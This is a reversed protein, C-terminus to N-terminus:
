KLKGLLWETDEGRPAGRRARLALPEDLRDRAEGNREQLVLAQGLLHGAEAAGWLFQCEAASARRLAERASAEAAAAEEEALGLEAQECLLDVHYLGLGCHR